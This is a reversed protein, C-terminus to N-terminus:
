KLKVTVCIASQETIYRCLYLVDKVEQGHRYPLEVDIPWLTPTVIEVWLLQGISHCREYFTFMVEDSMDVPWSIDHHMLM